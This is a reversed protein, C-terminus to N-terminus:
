DDHIRRQAVIRQIHSHLDITGPAGKQLHIQAREALWHREEASLDKASLVLVPLEAYAPQERLRALVAFGDMGPMMLDLVVLQPQVASVAQLGSAGDAAEVVRHGAEELISRVIQRAEADDDIVLVTASQQVWRRVLTRLGEEQVPKLLYDSAGLSLGLRQQEVISCIAVPIHATQPHDRIQALVEWGDLHPMLLDLLVLQPQLEQVVQAAERSDLVPRVGYGATQLYEGLIRQSEADDDVVVITAGVPLAPVLKPASQEVPQEALPLTFSFTSGQGPVSELWMRGGHLEVLRRSIPLGLGTGQYSRSLEGEIQRFEEFVLSQQNAPIGIGTDQVALQVVGGALTVRLTISGQETFKAANSLLNLLVQRVRTKDILLTPLNDPVDSILAIPKDRTLGVTTSMVGQLLPLLDTPELLLDMRGAEIKALDLVDNILGLLHDANALVRQQLEQQRVTLPGYREKSMFRTFNMIANLPTRLEHSMNALFQTKLRNADEAAATAAKLASNLRAQELLAKQLDDQTARLIAERRESKRATETAWQVTERLSVAAFASLLAVSGLLLAFSFFAAVASGFPVGAAFMCGAFLLVLGMAVKAAHGESVLFTTLLVGIAAFWPIYNRELGFLLVTLVPLVSCVTITLWHALAQKGRLRLEKALFFCGFLAVPLALAPTAFDQTSLLLGLSLAGFLPLAVDVAFTIQEILHADNQHSTSASQM